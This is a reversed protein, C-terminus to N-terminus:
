KNEEVDQIDFIEFNKVYHEPLLYMLARFHSIAKLDTEADAVYSILLNKKM